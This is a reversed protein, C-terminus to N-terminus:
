RGSRRKLLELTNEDDSPNRSESDDAQGDGPDLLGAMESIFGSVNQEMSWIKDKLSANKKELTKCKTKWNLDEEAVSIKSKLNAITSADDNM